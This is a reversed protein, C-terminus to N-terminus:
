VLSFIYIVVILVTAVLWGIFWWINKHKRTWYFGLWIAIVYALCEGISHFAAAVSPSNNKFILRFILAIAICIIAFYAICDIVKTSSWRSNRNESNKRDAM